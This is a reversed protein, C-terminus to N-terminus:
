LVPSDIMREAKKKKSVKVLIVIRLIMLILGIAFLAIMWWPCAIVISKVEDTIGQYEITYVVNFIGMQPTDEWVSENYLQRGPLVYHEEPIEENTYIPTDSFLPYVKMTYTAFAHVNGTNEITSYGVVKSDLVFNTVGVNLIDGSNITNGTIEALVVHAVGIADGIGVGEETSAEAVETPIIAAYQGGAPADEPVEIKFEISATENPELTGSGGNTVTIWDAIDSNGDINTYVPDLDETLYFPKIYTTYTLPGDSDSPNYVKFAGKYTDGPDLVVSERLPSVGISIIGEAYTYASLMMSCVLSLAVSFITALRIKKM